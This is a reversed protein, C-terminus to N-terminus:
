SEPCRYHQSVAQLHILLVFRPFVVRSHLTFQSLLGGVASVSDSSCEGDPRTQVALTTATAASTVFSFVTETPIPICSAM